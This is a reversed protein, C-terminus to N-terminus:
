QSTTGTVKDYARECAQGAIYTRDAEKAYVGARKDASSLLEALVRATEAKAAGADALSSIRGTESRRYKNQIGTLQRQLRDAASQANVADALAAALQTEANKTVQNVALQRRQEKDRENAEQRASAEADARDRQSWKLEWSSNTTKWGILWAGGSLLTTLGLWVFFKWQRVWWLLYLSM